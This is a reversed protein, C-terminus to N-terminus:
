RCYYKDLCKEYQEICAMKAQFEQQGSYKREADNGCTQLTEVCRECGWPDTCGGALMGTLVIAVAAVTTVAALGAIIGGKFRKSMGVM